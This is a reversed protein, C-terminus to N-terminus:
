QEMIQKARLAMTQKLLGPVDVGHPTQDSFISGAVPAHKRGEYLAGFVDEYDLDLNDAVTLLAIELVTKTFETMAVSATERSICSPEPPITAAIALDSLRVWLGPEVEVNLKAIDARAERFAAELYPRVLQAERDERIPRYMEGDVLM